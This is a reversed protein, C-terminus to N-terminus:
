LISSITGLLNNVADLVAGVSTGLEPLARTVSDAIVTTNTLAVGILAGFLVISLIVILVGIAGAIIGIIGIIYAATNMNNEPIRNREALLRNNKAKVFGIISLIFGAINIIPLFFIAVGVISFVMATTAARRHQEAPTIYPPQSATNYNPQGTTNNTSQNNTEM